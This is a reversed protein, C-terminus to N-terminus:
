SASAAVRARRGASPMRDWRRAPLGTVACAEDLWRTMEAPGGEIVWPVRANRVLTWVEAPTELLRGGILVHWCDESFQARTLGRVASVTVLGRLILHGRIQEAVTGVACLAAIEELTYPEDMRWRPHPRRLDGIPAEYWVSIFACFTVAANYAVYRSPATTITDLWVTLDAANITTPHADWARFLVLLRQAYQVYMGTTKRSRGQAALSRGFARVLLEDYLPHPNANM